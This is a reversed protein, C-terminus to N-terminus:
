FCRAEVIYVSYHGFVEQWTNFLICRYILLFIPRLQHLVAKLLVYDAM